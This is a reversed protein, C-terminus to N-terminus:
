KVSFRFVGHSGRFAFRSARSWCGCNTESEAQWSMMNHPRVVTEDDNLEQESRRLRAAMGLAALMIGSHTSVEVNAVYAPRITMMVM